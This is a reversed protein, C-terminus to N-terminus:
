GIEVMKFPVMGTFANFGKELLTHNICAFLFDPSKDIHKQVHGVNWKTEITGKVHRAM